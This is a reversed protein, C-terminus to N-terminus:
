WRCGHDAAQRGAHAPQLRHQRRLRRVRPAHRAGPICRQPYAAERPPHAGQLPGPVGHHHRLRDFRLDFYEHMDDVDSKKESFILVPPPTKQLCELLYVVRAEIKVYEVEQLVDLNAAGARGVNITIPDVLASEAFDRIKAPMTASFLLTQRQGKFYSMITRLDEEFGLDVMRDAEDLCMYRCVDLNIKKKDLMDMLRGPTAVVIHTGKRFNEAQQQMNLGGVALLVRLQPEQDEALATVYEMLVDYTQRALERSPCLIFGYPGEGHIFPMSREQELAFHIVPLSFVLTKGSGTFAVGIMDRGSLAVPLGQVQIPTPSVKGAKILYRQVAPHLKM